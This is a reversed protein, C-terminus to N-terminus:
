LAKIFLWMSFLEELYLKWLILWVLEFYNKFRLFENQSKLLPEEQLVYDMIYSQGFHVDPVKELIGWSYDKWFDHWILWLKINSFQVFVLLNVKWGIRLWSCVFWQYKAKHEGMSEFTWNSKEFTM